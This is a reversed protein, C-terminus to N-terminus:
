RSDPYHDLSGYNLEGPRPIGNLALGINEDNVPLGLSECIVKPTTKRLEEIETIERTGEPDRLSRRKSCQVLFHLGLWGTWLNVERSPAIAQALNHSSFLVPHNGM